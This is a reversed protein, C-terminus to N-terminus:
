NSRPFRVGLMEAIMFDLPMLHRSPKGEIIVGPNAVIIRGDKFKIKEKQILQEKIESWDEHFCHWGGYIALWDEDDPLQHDVIGPRDSYALLLLTIWLGVEELSMGKTFVHEKNLDIVYQKEAMGKEKGRGM